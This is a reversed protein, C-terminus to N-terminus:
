KAPQHVEVQGAERQATNSQRGHGHTTQGMMTVVPRGGVSGSPVTVTVTMGGAMRAARVGTVDVVM